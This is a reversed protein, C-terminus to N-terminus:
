PRRASPRPRGRGMASPTSRRWLTCSVPVSAMQLSYLMQQKFRVNDNIISSEGINNICPTWDKNGYNEPELDGHWYCITYYLIAFFIWSGYFSSAFMLVCYSWSSDLLTTYFDYFYRRRKKSINKYLVSTTGDKQVVRKLKDLKRFKQINELQRRVNELIEM